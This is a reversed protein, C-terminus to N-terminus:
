KNIDHMATLLSPIDDPEPALIISDVFVHREFDETYVRDIYNKWPFFRHNGDWIFFMKNKYATLSLDTDLQSEFVVNAQAWNPSWSARVEDDVFKFNGRSDTASIYFVRDGDRYGNFFDAELKTIDGKLAPRVIPMPVMRCLPVRLRFSPRARIASITSTSNVKRKNTLELVKEQYTKNDVDNDEDSVFDDFSERLNRKKKKHHNSSIGQHQHGQESPHDQTSHMTSDDDTFITTTRELDM